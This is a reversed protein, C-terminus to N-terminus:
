KVANWQKMEILFSSLRTTLLCHQLLAVVARLTLKTKSPFYFIEYFHPPTM